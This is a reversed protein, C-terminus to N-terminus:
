RHTKFMSTIAESGFVFILVLFALTLFSGLYGIFVIVGDDKLLGLTIFFVSWGALLNSFPIPLPLALFLGLFLVLLGNFIQMAAHGCLVPWRPHTLRSTKKLIRLFLRATKQITKSSITKKLMKQPLWISKGLALRFGLFAIAIGIPTSLGPLPIPQCFPLALFVLLLLRSKGCLSELIKKITLSPEKRSKEVLIALDEELTRCKTQNM